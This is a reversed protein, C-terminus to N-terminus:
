SGRPERGLGAFKGWVRLIVGGPKVGSIDRKPSCTNKANDPDSLRYGAKAACRSIEPRTAPYGLRWNYAHRRRGTTILAHMHAFRVHVATVVRAIKRLLIASGSVPWSIAAPL